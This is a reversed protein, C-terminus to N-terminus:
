LGLLSHLPFIIGLAIGICAGLLLDHREIKSM